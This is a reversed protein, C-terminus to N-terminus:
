VDSHNVTCADKIMDAVAKPADEFYYAEWEMNYDHANSTFAEAAEHAYAADASYGDEIAHKKMTNITHMSGEKSAWCHQALHVAEHTLAVELETATTSKSGCVYLHGAGIPRFLAIYDGKCEEKVHVKAGHTEALATLPHNRIVAEKFALNAQAPVAATPETAAPNPAIFSGGVVAAIAVFASLKM